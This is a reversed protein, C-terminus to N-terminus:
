PAEMERPSGVRVLRRVPVHRRAREQCVRV